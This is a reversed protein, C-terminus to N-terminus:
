RAPPLPVAAALPLFRSLLPLVWTTSTSFAFSPAALLRRPEHRMRQHLGSALARWGIMDAPTRSSCARTACSACRQCHRHTSFSTLRTAQAYFLVAAAAARRHYQEEDFYAFLKQRSLPFPSWRCAAVPRQSGAPRYRSAGIHQADPM